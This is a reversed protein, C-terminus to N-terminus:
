TGGEEVASRIKGAAAEVREVTEPDDEWRNYLQPTIELTAAKNKYMGYAAGILCEQHRGCSYCPPLKSTYAIYDVINVRFSRLWWHFDEEARDAKHIVDYGLGSTVLAFPKNAISFNVHRSGWLRSLFSIMVANITQFHIPSGLVVADAEKVKQYYPAMEDEYM